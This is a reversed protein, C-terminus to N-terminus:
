LVQYQVYAFEKITARDEVIQSMHNEIRSLISKGM